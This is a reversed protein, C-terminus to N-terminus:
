RSDPVSSIRDRCHSAGVLAVVAVVSTESVAGGERFVVKRAVEGLRTVRISIGSADLLLTTTLTVPIAGSMEGLLVGVSRV